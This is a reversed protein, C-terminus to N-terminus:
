LLLQWIPLSLTTQQVSGAPPPSNFFDMESSEDNTLRPTSPSFKGMTWCLGFGRPVLRCYHYDCLPSINYSSIATTPQGAIYDVQLVM